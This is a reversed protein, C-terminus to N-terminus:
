PGGGAAPALPADRRAAARARELDERTNVNLFPREDEFDVAVAGLRRLAAHAALAPEARTWDRLREAARPTWISVLPELGQASRAAAAPANALAAVIREYVTPDLWPLDCPAVFWRAAPAADFAASLAQMPGSGPRPDAVQQVDPPLGPLWAARVLVRRPAVSSLRRLARLWLPEGGGEADRLGALAKDSGFRRSRGGALVVLVDRTAEGSL